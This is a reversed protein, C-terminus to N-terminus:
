RTESHGRLRVDKVKQYQLLTTYLWANHATGPGGGGSRSKCRYTSVRSSFLPAKTGGASLSFVNNVAMPSCPPVPSNLWWGSLSLSLALFLRKTDEASCFSPSKRQTPCDLTQQARGMNDYWYLRNVNLRISNPNWCQWWQPDHLTTYPPALKEAREKLRERM